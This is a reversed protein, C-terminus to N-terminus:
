VSPSFDDDGTPGAWYASMRALAEELSPKVADVPKMGIRDVLESLLHLPLAHPNAVAVAGGRDDALVPAAKLAIVM